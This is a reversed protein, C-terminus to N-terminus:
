RFIMSKGRKYSILIGFEWGITTGAQCSRFDYSYTLPLVGFRDYVRKSFSPRKM